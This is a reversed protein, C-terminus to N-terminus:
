EVNAGEQKIVKDARYLLSPPITVGIQKATKLNIFFEFKMPQEIPLDSPKTGKLIKDVYTAARRFHEPDSVAYSSLGGAATWSGWPYMGPVRGKAALGLIQQRRSIFVSQGQVLLAEVHHQNMASFMSDIQKADFTEFPHIKIRLAQAAVQVGRLTRRDGSHLIGFHVAKPV